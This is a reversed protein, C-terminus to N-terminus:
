ITHSLGTTKGCTLRSFRATWITGRSGTSSTTMCPAHPDLVIVPCRSKRWGKIDQRILNELFKSKGAGTAGCVYLHKDRLSRPLTLTAKRGALFGLNLDNGPPTRMSM